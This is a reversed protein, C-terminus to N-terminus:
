HAGHSYESQWLDFIGKGESEQLINPLDGSAQMNRLWEDFAGGAGTGLDAMHGAAEGMLGHMSGAELTSPAFNGALANDWVSGLVPGTYQVANGIMEWLSHGVQVVVDLATASGAPAAAAVMPFAMGAVMLALHSWHFLSSHGSAHHNYEHSLHHDRRDGKNEFLGM